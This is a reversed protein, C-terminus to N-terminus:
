GHDITPRSDIEQLSSRVVAMGPHSTSVTYTFPLLLLQWLHSLAHETVHANHDCIIGATHMVPALLLAGPLLGRPIVDRIDESASSRAYAVYSQMVEHQVAWHEDQLLM